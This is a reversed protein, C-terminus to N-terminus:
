NNDKIAKQHQAKRKQLHELALDLAKEIGEDVPCLVVKDENYFTFENLIKYMDCGTHSYYQIFLFNSTLKRLQNIKKDIM